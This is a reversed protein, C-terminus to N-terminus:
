LTHGSLISRSENNSCSLLSITGDDNYRAEKVEEHSMLPENACHAIWQHARNM